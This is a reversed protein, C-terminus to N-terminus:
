RLAAWEVGIGAGELERALLLKWGGSDDLPIYALGGIDSPNEVGDEYLLATRARGLAAFFFGLEFVVNQRARPREAASGRARGVDDGTAIIIAYGADAAHLEFKEIITRGGNAQEHLIIPENKTLRAVFRAVEHKRADSHGHVIFVQKGGVIQEAKSEPLGGTLEVEIKAAKLIAIVEIVGNAQAREWVDPPTADTWAPLGYHVERFSTYLPNTDGLVSRLVVETTQRWVDFDKPKGYNAESIREDLLEIKKDRDMHRLRLCRALQAQRHGDQPALAPRIPLFDATPIHPLARRSLRLGFGNLFGATAHFREPLATTSGSRGGCRGAHRVRSRQGPAGYQSIEDGEDVWAVRGTCLDPLVSELKRPM